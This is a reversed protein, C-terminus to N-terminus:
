ATVVTKAAGSGFRQECFDLLQPDLLEPPEEGVMIAMGTEDPENPDDPDDPDVPHPDDLQPDDPEDPELEPWIQILIGEDDPPEDELQPEDDDLQPDDDPLKHLFLRDLELEHEPDPEFFHLRDRRDDDDDDLLFHLLEFFDHM